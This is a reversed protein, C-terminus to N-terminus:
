QCLHCVFRTPKKPLRKFGVCKYHYWRYCTDCGIWEREEGDSYVGSCKFCHNTDEDDESPTQLPETQTTVELEDQIIPDEQANREELTVPEVEKEASRGKKEVRKLAKKEEEQQRLYEMVEASTLAQGEIHLKVRRKNGRCPANPLPQLRAAFFHRLETRLPTEKASSCSSAVKQSEDTNTVAVSPAIKYQPIAGSNLPHLGCARFGASIHEPCVSQTWLQSLLSPLEEKTVNAAWTSTKYQKLIKKWMAKRPGYVGVDMPQLIHSIHAPLCVLHINWMKAEELLELSLHSHHGNFFLVVPGTRLFEQVAPIFIKKFWSLFNAKEMWGSESVSFRAGEPGGKMWFTYLHKGKYVVFPPLRRGSASGRAHITTVERGSGSTIEHVWKSGRRALVTSSAVLTCIGSQRLEM